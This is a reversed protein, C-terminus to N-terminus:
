PNHFFLVTYGSFVSKMPGFTELTKDYLLYIKRDVWVNKAVFSGLVIIPEESMAPANQNQLRITGEPAFVTLGSPESKKELDIKVQVNNGYAYLLLSAPKPNIFEVESDLFCHKGVFFSNQEGAFSVVVNQHFHLQNLADLSVNKLFTCTPELMSNAHFHINKGADIKTEEQFLAKGQFFIHGQIGALTAQGEILTESTPQLHLNKQAIIKAEKRSQLLGGLSIEGPGNSHTAIQLLGETKLETGQNQTYSGAVIRFDGEAQIKTGFSELLFQEQILFTVHGLLNLTSGNKLTIDKEFYYVTNEGTIGFTYTEGTNWVQEEFFLHAPPVGTTEPLAPEEIEALSGGSLQNRLKEYEEFYEDWPNPRVNANGEELLHESPISASHNLINGQNTSIFGKVVTGEQLLINGQNTFANGEVFTDKQLHLHGISEEATSLIDGKLHVESGLFISGNSQLNAGSLWNGEEIQIILPKSLSSDVSALINQGQLHISQQANIPGYSFPSLNLYNAKLYYERTKHSHNFFATSRLILIGDQDNLRDQDGDENDIVRVWFVGGNFNKAGRGYINEIATAPLNPDFLLGDDETNPLQDPGLLAQSTESYGANNLAVLALSLGADAIASSYFLSSQTQTFRHHTYSVQLFAGAIGIMVMVLILSTLIATGKQTFSPM